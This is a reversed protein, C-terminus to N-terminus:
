LFLVLGGSSFSEEGRMSCSMLLTREEDELLVPGQWEREDSEYTDKEM